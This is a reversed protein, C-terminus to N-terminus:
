SVTEKDIERLPPRNFLRRLRLRLNDMYEFVAPIIVLTLVTSSLLGGIITIGMSRRFKGVETLGLALPLMGAILAFTTMLIPRLRTLGAKILAADHDLGRRMLKQTYDVLLISNKTVLGLLMIFGIMVFMTLSQGTIFLAVLGGVIALPLAMMITFPLIISEYLSALVMYIFIISLGAAIVMNNFLDRMDESQGLFEYTVGEPLKEQKMINQAVSTIDGIAGNKALNGTIMVYRGRNRRYIKSPGTTQLPEAINKLKVLQNNVNPVYLQDFEKSLDRQDEKLRIRIDYELGNERYKAPTVGEVMGRLEMGAATSLVGLRVMRNPDFKVQFEPKGPKYNSDVDVLGPIKQIKPILANTAKSLLDLDEGKLMLNFPADNNGGMTIDGVAPNMVSKFPALLTRVHEKMDSTSRKREQAPVMRIFLQAISSEGSTNGVTSLVLEIDKERRLLQDVQDAYKTMQVLSTGPAAQLNVMFEGFENTGMFSKPIGKTLALSGAFIALASLLVTIKHRLTFRMTREYFREIGKYFIEFWQAPLHLIRGIGKYEKEHASTILYASLMPATTLADFLSITMAFVVTLGFQKFFQGIMGKLFGVPLFVAIVTLTTAVVALAVEDTGKQAAVLPTEGLEIHRFINERVVIADDILLGVALSLSMLTLMNVSFGALYMFIFAGILSNPLAIVTIFTSRLNGLFLYVVIVALIIGQFITQKVDVLNMRIPRAGDRVIVLQPAGKLNKLAENLKQIRKSMADSVAVTNAGSQKYVNLVLASKGNLFGRTKEEETGDSVVGVKNVTIPVDSGFFSVVVEKIQQIARFEGLSRFALDMAGQSVKGVPINQSNAAIRGAAMTVSTEYDKLKNMDLDVHVERKSGGIIDVKSTNAVQELGNKVTTDALDYLQAPTLDAKLSAIMVPQDSPDFRQIIPEKIDQPLQNRVLAVKDKVQQEAYKPDTELTFEGWVMSVGDQSVSTVNKLGAISSIQEELKRSVLTEMERPGAGPYVTTVAVFPFNIDPFLDVSMRNMCIFGVILMTIIVATIFTPRKISIRALNM